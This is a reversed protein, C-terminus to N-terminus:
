GGHHDKGSQEVSWEIHCADAARDRGSQPRLRIMLPFQGSKEYQRLTRRLDAARALVPEACHEAALVERLAGPSEPEVIIQRRNLVFFSTKDQYGMPHSLGVAQESASWLAPAELKLGSPVLELMVADPRAYFALMQSIKNKEYLSGYNDIESILYGGPEGDLARTLAGRLPADTQLDANIYLVPKQVAPERYIGALFRLARSEPHRIRESQLRAPTIVQGDARIVGGDFRREQFLSDLSVVPRGACLARLQELDSAGEAASRGYVAVSIAQFSPYLRLDAYNPAQACDYFLNDYYPVILAGRPSLRRAMQSAFETSFLPVADLYNPLTLNWIILDYVERGKLVAHLADDTKLTVRPPPWSFSAEFAVRRRFDEDTFAPSNDIVDVKLHPDLSILKQLVLHNGLGLLLVRAPKLRRVTEEAVFAKFYDHPLYTEATYGDLTLMKLFPIFGGLVSLHNRERTVAVAPFNLHAYKHYSELDRDSVWYAGYFRRAHNAMRSEAPGPLWILLGGVLAMAAWASKGIRVPSLILALAVLAVFVGLRMQLGIDIGPALLLGQALCSGLTTFFIHNESASEEQQLPVTLAILSYPLLLGGLVVLELAPYFGLYWGALGIPDFFLRGDPRALTLFGLTVVAMLAAIGYGQPLPLRFLPRCAWVAGLWLFLFTLLLYFYFELGTPYLMAQYLNFFYNIFVGSALGLLLSFRPGASFRYSVAVAPVARKREHWALFFLALAAFFHLRGRTLLPLAALLGALILLALLHVRRYAGQTYGSGYIVRVVAVGACVLVLVAATVLAAGALPFRLALQLASSYFFALSLELLAAVALVRSIRRGRALPTLGALFGLFSILVVLTEGRVTHGAVAKLIDVAQLQALVMLAAAALAVM